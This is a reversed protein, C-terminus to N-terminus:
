KGDYWIRKGTSEIIMSDEAFLNYKDIMENLREKEEEALNQTELPDAKINFIEWEELSAEPALKGLRRIKWDGEIYAAQNHLEIALANRPVETEGLVVSAQNIGRIPLQTDTDNNPIKTLDINTLGYLTPALDTAHLYQQKVTGRDEKKIMPGTILFNTNIGGQGSTTKHLDYYPANNVNTWNEGVSVFSHKLGINDLSNDINQQAWYEETDYVERGSPNAGNDSLFIIITNDYRDTEKLTQIVNGIQDDMYAVMAAYVQMKKTEINKEEKSLKEWKEKLELDKVPRDQPFLNLSSIKDMREQYIPEYGETYHDKFKNIWDQPAQIPDHPATYALYAFIPQNQPTEKIWTNLKKTYYETSYFNKPLDNVRAGDLTYFTHFKEASGLSSMDDFHSAGGGMFAFSHNFGRDNPAAGNEFGLHWKGSMLTQYGNKQFYEPMTVVRDTLRLEYGEKNETSEYWWMGGIGAEQNTNGTLIMSRAPASMPSTYYQSFRIGEDALAQLNPTPIEGGFPSIDSYGLDDAVILLINPKEKEINALAIPSSLSLALTISIITKKM